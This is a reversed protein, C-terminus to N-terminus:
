VRSFAAAKEEDGMPSRALDDMVIIVLCFCLEDGDGHLTPRLGAVRSDIFPIGRYKTEFCDLRESLKLESSEISCM